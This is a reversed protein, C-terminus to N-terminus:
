LKENVKHAIAHLADQTERRGPLRYRQRVYLSEKLYMEAESRTGLLCAIHALNSLTVATLWHASISKATLLSEQLWLAAQAYNGAMEATHSLNNFATAIGLPNDMQQYLALSEEDFRLAEDYAGLACAVHGLGSLTQAIELPADVARLITLSQEYFQRAITWNQRQGAIRALGNLGIGRELLAERDQGHLRTLGAQLSSEAAELEVLHSQCLGQRILLRACLREVVTAKGGLETSHESQWHTLALAFDDAGHWFLGKLRYFRYLPALALRTAELERETAAMSWAARINTLEAQIDALAAQQRSDQLWADRAQLFTAYYHTYRRCIPGVATAEAEMRRQVHRHIVKHMHFRGDHAEEGRWHVLSKDLLATLLTDTVGLAAAGERTFGDAFLTLWQAAQREVPEMLQWTQACVMDLSYHGEPTNNWVATLQGPQRTITEVIQPLSLRGVWGAALELGLPLGEVAQCIQVLQPWDAETLLHDAAHRRIAQALFAVGEYSAAEPDDTTEPYTLGRLPYPWEERIKLRVRSTVLLKLRPAALLLNVLLGAEAVLREFNDLVLLSNQNQLEAIVATELDVGMEYPIALADALAALLGVRNQVRNLSVFYVHGAFEAVLQRAAALALATKGVGGPGILSLLACDPQRLRAVVETLERERGVFPTLARPLPAPKGPRGPRTEAEGQRDGLLSARNLSPPRGLEKELQGAFWEDHQTAAAVQGDHLYLGMLEAQATENLPDLSARRYAYAIAEGVRGQASLRQAAQALAQLAEQKLLAAQLLQWRDFEPSDPLAFDAMFDAQYLDAAAILPTPESSEQGASLHDRFAVVDVWLPADAALSVMDGDLYLLTPGLRSKIEALCQRLAARAPVRDNEPWFLTTLAARDHPQGTVALYALLALSKRRGLRIIGGERELRPSGFLYLRLEKGSLVSQKM